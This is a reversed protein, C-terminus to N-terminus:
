SGLAHLLDRTGSLDLVGNGGTVRGDHKSLRLNGM